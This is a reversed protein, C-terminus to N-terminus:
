SMIYDGSPRYLHIIFTPVRKVKNRRKVKGRCSIEKVISVGPVDACVSESVAKMFIRNEASDAGICYVSEHDLNFCKLIQEKQSFILENERERYSAVVRISCKLYNGIFSMTRQEPGDEREAHKVLFELFEGIEKRVSLSIRGDLILRSGLSRMEQIFLPVLIGKDDISKLKEFISKLKGSQNLTPVLHERTFQDSYARKVGFLYKSVLILHTAKKQPSTLFHSFEKMLVESIFFSAANVMNQTRFKKDQLVLIVNEDDFIFQDAEEKKTHLKIKVYPLDGRMEKRLDSVFLNMDSEIDRKVYYRDFSRFFFAVIGTILALWKEVKEPSYFILFFVLGAGGFFSVIAFALSLVDM